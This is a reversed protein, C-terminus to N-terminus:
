FDQYIGKVTNIFDYFEEDKLTKFDFDSIIIKLLSEMIFFFPSNIDKAYLYKNSTKYAIEKKDLIINIKNYLNEIHLSLKQYINLLIGIYDSYSELYVMEMALSKIPNEEKENNESDFRLNTIKKLINKYDELENFSNKIDPLINSLYLLYYDDSLWEYFQRYDEQHDKEYEIIQKFLENKKIEIEMNKFINEIKTQYDQKLKLHNEEETSLDKIDEETELYQTSLENKIYTRLRGLTYKMGPLKLGLLLTIKNNKLKKKFKATTSIDLTNLYIKTLYKMVENGMYYNDKEKKDEKIENKKEM